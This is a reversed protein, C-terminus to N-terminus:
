CPHLFTQHWGQFTSLMGTEEGGLEWGGMEEEINVGRGRVRKLIRRAKDVQGREALWKPSEPVFWLGLSQVVGIGGAVAFVVRWMNGYSLFYGLLQTVVIGVNTMVQTLAGFLGKESPPATEALYIPVVVLTAGSGLGSIFRGLVLVWIQPALAEFVPGLIFFLTILRMQSLRGSPPSPLRSFLSGARNTKALTGKSSNPLSSALMGIVLAGILGGVTYMSSVLGFQTSNM